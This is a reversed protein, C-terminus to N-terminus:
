DGAMSLPVQLRCIYQSENFVIFLELTLITILKTQKLGDYVQMIRKLGYGPILAFLKLAYNRIIWVGQM